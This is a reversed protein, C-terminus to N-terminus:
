LALPIDLGLYDAVIKTVDTITGGSRRGGAPVGQGCMAYFVQFEEYDTPYGHNGKESVQAKDFCWGPKAAVGFAARPSYGSLDMEEETIFRGFWEAQQVRGRMERITVTKKAYFFASGGCMEFTGDGEPLLATLDVIREVALQGHDSFLVTLRDRGAAKLLRGLNRDLASMAESLKSDDKGYNHCFADYAILHVLTLDPKRRRLVDVAVSTAFDDLFPQEIGRLKRGHKLFEWLQFFLSGARLNEVLQNQGPLIHMEPM